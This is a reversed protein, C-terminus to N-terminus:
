IGNRIYFNQSKRGIDRSCRLNVDYNSYFSFLFEHVFSDFPTWKRYGQTVELRIELRSM